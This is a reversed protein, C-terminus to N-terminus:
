GMTDATSTAGNSEVKEKISELATVIGQEIRSEWDGGSNAEMQSKTEPPPNIHLHITVTTKEDDGTFEMEGHYDHDESGWSLGGDDTRLYGSDEHRQGQIEVAMHVHDQDEMSAEKVTPLYEPMNEVKTIYDVVQQRPAQVDISKTYDPM